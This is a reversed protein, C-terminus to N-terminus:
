GNPNDRPDIPDRYKEWVAQKSRGLLTGIGFWSLGEIRAKNVLDEEMEDLWSRLVGIASLAVRPDDTNEEVHAVLTSPDPVETDIM